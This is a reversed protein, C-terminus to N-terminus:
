FEASTEGSAILGHLWLGTTFIAGVFVVFMVPNRVQLRPNFKLLAAKLAPVVIARDFLSRNKPVSHNM